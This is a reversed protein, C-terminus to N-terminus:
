QALLKRQFTSVLARNMASEDPLTTSSESLFIGFNVEHYTHYTFNFGHESAIDLVDSVWATGGRENEFCQHMLGFEGLYLPVGQKKGWAAYAGLASELSAKNRAMVGGEGTFYDLRALARTVQTWSGRPDPRSEDGIGEGKMWVSVSYSHGPKAAFRWNGSLSADHDTGAISLSAKGSHAESSVSASGASGAKWFYWDDLKELDQAYITGVLKGAEDYEKVTVDDFYATGANLESMLTVGLAKIKPDVIQYPQSEYLKWDSDGKDLYPPPAPEYNWLYWSLGASSILSEDPYKGGEGRNVWSAFQHSYEFPEYFHFEYVANEDPVLFFNMESDNSWDDGVSNTREVFVLHREDVERLAAITRTALDSWQSSSTTPRPENLLDYGAITPENEYREAIARWLAVFRAQNEPASWLAGGDGNSQFGGQPVHLNLILRVGHAKAWAVNRDVWDWGSQKYQYPASDDEFLAYNLYFRVANMGWSAVREFDHEAHHYANPLTPNSWVNNGFAVGRLSVTTGNEDVLSTGSRRIFGEGGTSSPHDPSHPSTTSGCAALLL